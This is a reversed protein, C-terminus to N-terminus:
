TLFPNVRIINPNFHLAANEIYLGSALNNHYLAGTGLGQPLHLPRDAAFQGIAQLGINSELASTMWWDIGREKALAMWAKCSQFGGLLSPKLILYEPMLADLLAERQDPRRHGILEEDLAIPLIKARILEGMAKWQGQALPQEISHVGLAALAELKKPASAADFAGNADVRISLQGAQVQDQLEEILALEAKFDLAGIKLKICTYDAALKRQLEARMAPIQNMWVLGNIPISKIGQTFENPFYTGNGHHLYDRWAMEYAMQFSAEPIPEQSLYAELAELNEPQPLAQWDYDQFSQSVDTKFEPSLGALPGAEGLGWVEQNKPDQLGLFHSQKEKLVGRSTGADFTFRLTHTKTHIQPGSIM